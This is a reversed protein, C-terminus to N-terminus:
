GYIIHMIGLIAVVWVIWHPFPVKQRQSVKRRM